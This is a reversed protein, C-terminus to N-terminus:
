PAFSLYLHGSDGSVKLPGLTALSPRPAPSVDTVACDMSIASGLLTELRRKGFASHGMMLSASRSLVTFQPLAPRTDLREVVKSLVLAALAAWALEGLAPHHPGAVLSARLSESDQMGVRLIPVSAQLSVQMMESCRLAAEGVGPPVYSGQHYWEELLTSRLVLTPFLRLGDPKWRSLRAVSYLDDEEMAGPLFPMLQGIVAIGAEHLLNIAQEVVPEEYERRCLHLVPTSLSQIGLEVTKVGSMQLRDVTQKDIQDPRTSIRVSEIVGRDKLIQAAALWSTQEALPLGTFTAGFLALERKPPPPSDPDGCAQHCSEQVWDPLTLPTLWTPATGATISQDCFVCRQPCGRNPLFVPLITIEEKM